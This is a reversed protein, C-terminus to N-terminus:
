TASRPASSSPCARLGARAAQKSLEIGDMKPMKLDTVVVDAAARSARSRARATRPPIWSYGEAQSSRSGVARAQSTMSSSSALRRRRTKDSM